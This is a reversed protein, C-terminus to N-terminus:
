GRNPDCASNPKIAGEVLDTAAGRYTVLRKHEVETPCIDVIVQLRDATLNSHLGLVAGVIGDCGGPLLKQFQKLMISVNSSRRTDLVNATGKKKRKKNGKGHKGAGGGAPEVSFKEQLQMIEEPTIQVIYAGDGFVSRTARSEDLTDWHIQRMSSRRRKPMQSLPSGDSPGGNSSGATLGQEVGRPGAKFVRVHQSPVEDAAMKQGVADRPVGMKMMQFYKAYESMEELSEYPSKKKETLAEAKVKLAEKKAKAPTLSGKAPNAEVSKTKTLPTAQTNANPQGMNGYNYDPDDVIM